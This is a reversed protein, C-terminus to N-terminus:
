TGSFTGPYSGQNPVGSNFSRITLIMPAAPGGNFSVSCTLTSVAVPQYDSPNEQIPSLFGGSWGCGAHATNDLSTLGLGYPDIGCGTSACQITGSGSLQGAYTGATTQFVGDLTLSMPGGGEGRVLLSTGVSAPPLPGSHAPLALCTGSPDLTQSTVCLSLLGDVPPQNVIVTASALPTAAGAPAATLVTGLGLVACMLAICCLSM